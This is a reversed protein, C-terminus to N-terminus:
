QIGHKTPIGPLGARETPFPLLLDQPSSLLSSLSRFSHLSFQDFHISFLSYFFKFNLFLDYRLIGLSVYICYKM